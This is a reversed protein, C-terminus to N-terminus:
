DAADSSGGQKRKGPIARLRAVSRKVGSSDVVRTRIPTPGREQVKEVHDRVNAKWERTRSLPLKVYESGLRWKLAARSIAVAIARADGDPPESPKTNM